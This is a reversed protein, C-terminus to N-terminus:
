RDTNQVEIEVWEKLTKDNKSMNENADLMQLNIISNNFTPDFFENWATEDLCLDKATEETFFSIPHLHDKHFNNNKYDLNPFLVALISFAYQDDKETQM